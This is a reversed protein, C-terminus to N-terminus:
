RTGSISYLDAWARQRDTWQAEPTGAILQANALTYKPLTSIDVVPAAIPVVPAQVPVAQGPAGSLTPAPAPDAVPATVASAPTGFGDAYRAQLASLSSGLGDLVASTGTQAAALDNQNSTLQALSQQLPEFQGQVYSAFDSATSDNGGSGTYSGAGTAPVGATGTALGTPTATGKKKRWLALLGVAVFGGVALQKKHAQVFRGPKTARGRSPVVPETGPLRVPGTV